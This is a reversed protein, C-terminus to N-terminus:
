VNVNACHVFVYGGSPEDRKDQSETYKNTDIPEVDMLMFAAMEISPSGLCDVVFLLVIQGINSLIYASFYFLSALLWPCCPM